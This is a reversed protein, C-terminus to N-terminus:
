LLGYFKGNASFGRFTASSSADAIRHCNCGRAWLRFRREGRNGSSRRGRAAPENADQMTRTRHSAPCCSTPIPRIRRRVVRGGHRVTLNVVCVMCVTAAAALVVLRCSSDNGAGFRSLRSPSLSCPHEEQLVPQLPSSCRHSCSPPSSSM